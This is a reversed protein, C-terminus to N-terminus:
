LRRFDLTEGVALTFSAVQREQSSAHPGARSQLVRRDRSLFPQVHEPADKREVLRRSRSSHLGHLSPPCQLRQRSVKEKPYGVRYGTSRSAHNRPHLLHCTPSCITTSRPSMVCVIASPLQWIPRSTRGSPKVNSASTWNGGPSDRSSTTSVSPVE